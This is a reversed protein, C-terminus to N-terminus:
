RRQLPMNIPPMSMKRIIFRSGVVESVVASLALKGFVVRFIGESIPIKTAESFQQIIYDIEDRNLVIGTRKRGMAGTVIIKEDPGSCEISKVLSDKILINLKDLLIEDQQPYPMINRVTEPLSPTPIEFRPIKTRTKFESKKIQKPANFEFLTDNKGLKKIRKSEDEIKKTIFKKIEKKKKRIQPVKSPFWRKEESAKEEIEKKIAIKKYSQTNRLLEKTFELLFFEKFSTKM